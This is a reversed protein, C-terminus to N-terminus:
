ICCNDVGFKVADNDNYKYYIDVKNNELGNESSIRDLYFMNNDLKFTYYKNVLSYHDMYEITIYKVKHVAYTFSYHMFPFFIGGIFVANNDNIEWFSIYQDTISEGWRGYPSGNDVAISSLYYNKGDIEIISNIENNVGDYEYLKFKDYDFENEPGLNEKEIYAPLIENAKTILTDTIKNILNNKDNGKISMKNLADNMNKEFFNQEYSNKLLSYYLDRHEQNDKDFWEKMNNLANTDNLNVGNEVLINAASLNADKCFVALISEGDLGVANIDAGSKVLGSVIDSYGMEASKYLAEDFKKDKVFKEIEAIGDDGEHNKM